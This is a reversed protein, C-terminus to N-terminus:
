ELLSVCEASAQKTDDCLTFMWFQVDCLMLTLLRSTQTVLPPFQHHFEIPRGIGVNPSGYATGNGRCCGRSIEPLRVLLDPLFGCFDASTEPLIVLQWDCTPPYNTEEPGASGLGGGGPWWVAAREALQQHTAKLNISLGLSITGGNKGPGKTLSM